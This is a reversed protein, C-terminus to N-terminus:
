GSAGPRSWWSAPASRDRLVVGGRGLSLGDQEDVVDLGILDVRFLMGDGRRPPSIERPIAADAGRLREAADRDDCGCLKAATGKPRLAFAELAM